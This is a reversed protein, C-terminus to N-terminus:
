NLVKELLNSFKMGYKNYNKVLLLYQKYNGYPPIEWEFSKMKNHKILKFILYDKKTKGFKEANKVNEFMM